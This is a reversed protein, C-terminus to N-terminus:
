TTTGRWSRVRRWGQRLWPLLDVAARYLLRNPAYDWAGITRTVAGRFGRKFRYVGWMRDTEDFVDPAGWFDYVECGHAKAWKIAEWQLAYNPMRSREEDTSAGYFYWCKRGFVYLIVHAIPCDQYYALFAQAHGAQMMTQWADRYYAFPRTLFGDREGTERYLEYLVPLDDLGAPRIQVDKKYAQRVKRRTNQSMGMLLDDESATLDLTITNRFQVQDRSFRWGRRRLLEQFAAGPPCPEDDDEGPVGTAVVVDPDIKLWVARMQRAREELQALVAESLGTDEYRLAPGRSIYIVCLPGIRRVGASAM